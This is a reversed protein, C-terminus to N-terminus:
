MIFAGIGFGVILNAFATIVCVITGCLALIIFASVQIDSGEPKIFGAM